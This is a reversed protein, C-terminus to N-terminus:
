DGLLAYTQRLFLLCTGRYTCLKDSFNVWTSCNVRDLSDSFNLWASCKGQYTSARDAFLLWTSRFTENELTLWIWLFFSRKNVVWNANHKSAKILPNNEFTRTNVLLFGKVAVTECNKSCFQLVYIQNTLFTSLASSIESLDAGSKGSSKM